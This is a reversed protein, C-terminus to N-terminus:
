KETMLWPVFYNVATMIMMMMMMMMKSAWNYLLICVDICDLLAPCCPGDLVSVAARFCTIFCNSPLYEVM